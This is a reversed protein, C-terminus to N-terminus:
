AMDALIAETSLVRCFEGNLSALNANHMQEATFHTGDPATREFTATGDSVLTVEFGLNAAMRVSTSVCHDTTLGVIVLREIGSERLHADLATGIFASNVSKTFLPEGPQPFVEPKIANGPQDPRLPSNPEVSDHRVHMVPLGRERWAALLRAMNSEAEPNNREGFAPNDLGQQVDIIILATASM